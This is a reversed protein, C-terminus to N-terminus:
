SWTVHAWGSAKPRVFLCKAVLFDYISARINLLSNRFICVDIVKAERSDRLKSIVILLYFKKLDNAIELALLDLKQTGFLALLVYRPIGSVESFYHGKYVIGTINKLALDSKPVKSKPRYM